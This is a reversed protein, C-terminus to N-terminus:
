HSKPEPASITGLALLLKKIERVRGKADQKVLRPFKGDLTFYDGNRMLMIRDSRAQISTVGREAAVPKLETVAILLEVPEPIKGFRDRLEARLQELAQKDTAQALKRYVEIRQHSEKIYSFPVDLPPHRLPRKKRGTRPRRLTIAHPSTLRSRERCMRGPTWARGSGLHQNRKPARKMAQTCRLFTSDCSLRSALVSRRAKSRASAKSSSSAIFTM